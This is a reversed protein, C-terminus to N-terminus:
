KKKQALAKRRIKAEDSQWFDYFNFWQLPSKQCYFALRDAFRQITKALMEERTSRAFKLSDAFHELYVNYVGSEKICFLLYVPCGLMSALMFPGQSFPAPDGLFNAYQVRGESNVSTRDGVIVITEGQEVKQKLLIATDVGISDVHILNLEVNPDSAGLVKQFNVAHKNFVLANIKLRGMKEGLARCLELNGLHSGIFVAGKQQEHVELFTEMKHVEVDELQIDNSWCAIKDIASMGFSYFHRFIQWQGIDSTDGKLGSIRAQYQRSADRATSSSLFFYATVPYLIAMFVPRGFMRYVWLLIRLSLLNGKEQTAAWHLSKKKRSKRWLLIPIRPLMGFFLRTHMKTIMWNDKWMRFHSLGDEPYIVRTPLFLIEVGSWYSRVMVDTDFDMRKGVRDREIVPIIEKLPYMRFGCMTDKICFSLTEVWVWFHTIYRGYFRGKPMSSDYVPKGSFLVDPHLFGQEVFLPIDESNHQGDADIQLAHTFGRAWARKMGAIVACGKGGNETLHIVEVDTCNKDIRELLKRTEQNSGDNVVIIPLRHNLLTSLRQEFGSCHNYNPIVLCASYEKM